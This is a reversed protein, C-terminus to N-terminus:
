TTPKRFESPTQHHTARFATNFSSISKFGTDLAITLIPLHSEEVLRRTAESIRYHNLFQNFNRYGLKQNILPRLRYAPMNLLDALDGITAGHQAYFRNESMAEQIRLIADPFPAPQVSDVTPTAPIEHVLPFDTRLRYLALTSAMAFCLLLFAGVTEVYESVPGVSASEVIIVLATVTSAGIVVPVRLKFRAAVLDNQRGKVALYSIHVVLALKILQPMVFFLALSLWSPLQAECSDCDNLLLALSLIWVLWFLPPVRTEDEFFYKGLLWLVAPISTALLLFMHHILDLQWWNRSVPIVLYSFFCLAAFGTLYGLKNRHFLFFHLCFQLAVTAAMLRFTLQLTDASEIM